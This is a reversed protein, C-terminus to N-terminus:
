LQDACVSKILAIMKEQTLPKELGAFGHVLADRVPKNLVLKINYEEEVAEISQSVLLSLDKIKLKESDSPNTGESNTKWAGYMRSVLWKFAKQTDANLQEDRNLSLAKQLGNVLVTDRVQDIWPYSERLVNKLIPVRM